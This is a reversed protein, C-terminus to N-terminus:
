TTRDVRRRTPLRSAAAFAARVAAVLAFLAFM